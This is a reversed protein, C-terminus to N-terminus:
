PARLVRESISPSCALLGMRLKWDIPPSVYKWGEELRLVRALGLKLGGLMKCPLEKLELLPDALISLMFPSIM